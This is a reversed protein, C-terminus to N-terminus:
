AVVARLNPALYPKLPVEYRELVNPEPDVWATEGCEVPHVAVKDAVTWATGELVSRRIVIYHRYRRILTNYVTDTGDQKKLRLMMGSFSARGGLVTDFTADLASTPVDATEPRFGIFGDATILSQLKIGANLEAVTPLAINSITLVSYVKIFGDGVIDAM